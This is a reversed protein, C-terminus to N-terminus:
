GHFPELLRPRVDHRPSPEERCGYEGYAVGVRSLPISPSQLSDVQLSFPQAQLDCTEALVWADHRVTAGDILPQANDQRLDRAICINRNRLDVKQVLNTVIGLVPERLSDDNGNALQNVGDDTKM